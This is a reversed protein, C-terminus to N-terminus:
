APRANGDRGGDLPLILRSTIFAWDDTTTSRVKLTGVSFTHFAIVLGECILFNNELSSSGAQDASLIGPRGATATIQRNSQAPSSLGRDGLVLVGASVPRPWGFAAANEQRRSAKNMVALARLILGRVVSFGSNREPEESM